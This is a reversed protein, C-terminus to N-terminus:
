TRQDLPQFSHRVRALANHEPAQRLARVDRVGDPEAGAVLSWCPDDRKRAPEAVVKRWVQFSRQRWDCNGVSAGVLRDRDTNGSVRSVDKLARARGHEVSLRVTTM